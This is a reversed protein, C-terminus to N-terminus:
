MTNQKYVEQLNQHSLNIITVLEILLKLKLDNVCSNAEKSVWIISIKGIIKVHLLLRIITNGNKLDNFFM